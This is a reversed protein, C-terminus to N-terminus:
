IPQTYRHAVLVVPTRSEASVHPTGIRLGGLDLHAREAIGVRVRSWASNPQCLQLRQLILSRALGHGRWEERVALGRLRWITHENFPAPEVVLTGAGVLSGEVFALIHRTTPAEDHLLEGTVAQYSRLCEVRLDLLQGYWYGRGSEAHFEVPLGNVLLDPLPSM